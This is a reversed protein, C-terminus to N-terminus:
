KMNAILSKNGKVKQGLEVNIEASIPLFIDVRSGFRIFGLEEGRNVAQGLELYPRIRRAIGGAIQRVLLEEGHITKIVITNRENLESSKPNFALLYKGPHYKQYVVEGDIPVRNLHVDYISMFVSIKRMERKFYEKEFVVENLLIRGDAPSSVVTGSPEIKREPHRFFLLVCLILVMCALILFIVLMPPVLFSLLIIIALIVVVVKIIIGKGETHIKM